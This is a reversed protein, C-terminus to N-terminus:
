SQKDDVDDEDSVEMNRLETILNAAAEAESNNSYMYPAWMESEVTRIFLELLDEITDIIRLRLKDDM